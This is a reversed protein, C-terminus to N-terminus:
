FHSACYPSPECSFLIDARRLAGPRHEVLRQGQALACFSVGGLYASALDAVDISIDAPREPARSVRSGEPGAAVAWTGRNWPCLEDAVEFVISGEGQYRRRALAAELDVIRLWLHDSCSTLVLARPDALLWRLPEDVPRTNAELAETLDLDCLFGWLAATADSGLACLERVRVVGPGPRDLGPARSVQYSAYGDVLGDPDHHVVFFLARTGDKKREDDALLDVWWDRPRSVDGPRLRRAEDFVAPLTDAATAQDVFALGGAPDVGPHLRADKRELRYSAQFVAPGYGFRGYILGESATLVALSEGAEHIDDLQRSMMRTLLGRRRHTPLVGVSAVGAVPATVPGPLTLELSHAYATAVLEGDVFAAISRDAEFGAFRRRVDAEDNRVAFATDGRNVFELYEDESVPRLVPEM